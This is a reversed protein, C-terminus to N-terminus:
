KTLHSSFSAQHVIHKRNQCNLLIQQKAEASSENWCLIEDLLRYCGICLDNTDLCCNRICPSEITSFSNRM